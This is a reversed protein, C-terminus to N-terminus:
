FDLLGPTIKQFYIDFIQWVPLVTPWFQQKASSVASLEFILWNQVIKTNTHGRNTLNISSNHDRIINHYMKLMNQCNKHLFNAFYHFIDLEPYKFTAFRAQKPGLLTQKADLYGSKEDFDAYIKWFVYFRAPLILKISPFICLKSIRISSLVKSTSSGQILIRNKALKPCFTTFIAM